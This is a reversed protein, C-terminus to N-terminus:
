MAWGEGNPGCTLVEPGNETIAVTHEFHASPLNDETIYTWGDEMLLIGKKGMNIMPEIALVMGVRIKFDTAPDPVHNPVQPSEHMERGIAHGVLEEIISFGAQHVFGSSHKVVKSWRSKTKLLEIDMKLCNETVQLLRKVEESKVEGVPYTVAADASWGKYQVGIDISVIDGSVLRRESPIGHVVEENISICASAPFPSIGAVHSPVGKFLPVANKGKIFAEVAADIEKTTVGAGVLARAGQHTEWLLLGADRMRKIQDSSKINMAMRKEIYAITEPMTIM